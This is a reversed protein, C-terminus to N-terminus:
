DRAHVAAGQGRAEARGQRGPPDMVRTIPYNRRRGLLRDVFNWTVVGDESAPELLYVVLTGLPQDTRVYWSGAAVDISDAPQWAGEVSVTRHGEFAFPAARLSDVRFAEGRVRRAAPM